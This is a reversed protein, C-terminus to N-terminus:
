APKKGSPRVGDTSPLGLTERLHAVSGPGLDQFSLLMWGARRPGARHDQCGWCQAREQDANFIPRRRNAHRGSAGADSLPARNIEGEGDGGGGAGAARGEPTRQNNSFAKQAIEHETMAKVADVQRFARRAEREASTMPKTPAVEGPTTTKTM